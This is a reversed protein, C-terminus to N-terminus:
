SEFEANKFHLVNCNEKVTRQTGDDFNAPSEAQIDITIQVKVGPRSTFHLVVEDVIDAFQKKAQIPDLEVTGYFQRKSAVSGESGSGPRQPEQADSPSGGRGPESPPYPSKPKSSDPPPCEVEAYDCATDPEILLLSGDLIPSTSKGFNFGIYKDGDKGYAFGFFDRSCAGAALTTRFVGDDKLRPLYLYCCTKQWVDLAKTEKINEKWFWTKLVNMLHIPAWETILLENEKLVREIDQTLNSSGPNVQFYEWRTGSVGKGPHADQVPALLWKYCERVMRLLADRASSLAAEANKAM